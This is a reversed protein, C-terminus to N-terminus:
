LVFPKPQKHTSNSVLTVVKEDERPWIPKPRPFIPKVPIPFLPPTPIEEWPWTVKPLYTWIAYKTIITRGFGVIFLGLIILIIINRQSM